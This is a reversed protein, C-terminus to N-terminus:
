GGRRPSDPHRDPKSRQGRGCDARVEGRPFSGRANCHLRSLERSVRFPSRALIGLDRAASGFLAAHLVGTESLATRHGRLVDVVRVLVDESRQDAM